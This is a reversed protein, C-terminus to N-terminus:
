HHSELERPEGPRIRGGQRGASPSDSRKGIWVPETRWEGPSHRVHGDLLVRHMERISDASVRDSLELAASLARTNAAIQLANSSARAGLEATLIQRASATLNEIQSSAASESRLLIPAFAAVRDGLEADFRSLEHAAGDM